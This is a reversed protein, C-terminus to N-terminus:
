FKELGQSPDGEPFRNTQLSIQYPDEPDLPPALLPAAAATFLFLGLLVMGALSVPNTVLGKLARYVETGLRRELWGAEIGGAKEERELTAVAM